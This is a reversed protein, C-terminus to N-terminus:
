YINDENILTKMLVLRTAVLMVNNKVLWLSFTETQEYLRIRQNLQGYMNIVIFGHNVAIYKIGGFCQTLLSLATLCKYYQNEVIDLVLESKGCAAFGSFINTYPVKVDERM